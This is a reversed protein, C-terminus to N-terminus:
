SQALIGPPVDVDAFTKKKGKDSVEIDWKGRENQRIALEDVSHVRLEAVKSSGKKFKAIFWHSGTNLIRYTWYGTWFSGSPFEVLESLRAGRIREM